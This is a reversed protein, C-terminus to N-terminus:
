APDQAAQAAASPLGFLSEFASRAIQSPGRPDSSSGPPHAYQFPWRTNTNTNTNPNAAKVEQDARYPWRPPPSTQSRYFPDVPSTYRPNIPVNPSASSLGDSNFLDSKECPYYVLDDFEGVFNNVENAIGVQLPCDVGVIHLSSAKAVKQILQDAVQLMFATESQVIKVSVDNRINVTPNKFTLIKSITEDTVWLMLTTESHRDTTFSFEISPDLGNCGNSILKVPKNRHNGTYKFTFTLSFQPQLTNSHFIPFALYGAGQLLARDTIIVDGFLAQTCRDNLERLSGDYTFHCTENCVLQAHVTGVSLVVLLFITLKTRPM